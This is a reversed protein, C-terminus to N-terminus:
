CSINKQDGTQENPEQTTTYLIALTNIEYVM